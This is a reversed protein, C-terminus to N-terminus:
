HQEKSDCCLTEIGLHRGMPLCKHTRVPIELSLATERRIALM